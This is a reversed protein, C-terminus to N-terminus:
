ITIELLKSAKQPILKINNLSNPILVVEGMKIDILKDGYYDISLLGEVCIYIVFSDLRSYDLVINETISIINFSFFPTEIVDVRGEVFKNLAYNTKYDDIFEYNIADVALDTHLERKNGKDDIRDWDYIRYTIDSTQQIEALLIGKGIAHIRGSPIYFVDGKSVIEFNLIDKIKKENLTKIYEEKNVYKNFGSILQSNTDAEIIYWIESKGRGGHRKTALYDNPHVQVSLDATADIFKVLLPFENGFKEYTSKGVINDKYEEIIKSLAKGKFDGNSIVSEFEAISSIEWSEGCNDLDGYDKTLITKIKDGGWIKELYISNFKLPYLKMYNYLKLHYM